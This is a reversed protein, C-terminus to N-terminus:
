LAPSRDFKLPRSHPCDTALLLSPQQDRESWISLQPYSQPDVQNKLGDLTSIQFPNYIPLVFIKDLEFLANAEFFTRM